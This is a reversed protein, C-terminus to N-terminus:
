WLFRNLLVLTLFSIPPLFRKAPGKLHQLHAHLSQSTLILTHGAGSNPVPLDPLGMCQQIHSSCKQGTVSPVMSHSATCLM